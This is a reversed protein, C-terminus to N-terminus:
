EPLPAPIALDIDPPPRLTLQGTWDFGSPDFRLEHLRATVCSGLAEGAAAPEELRLTSFAGDAGMAFRVRVDGTGAPHARFCDMLASDGAVAAQVAAPDPERLTFPPDDGDGTAASPGSEGGPAPTTGEGPDPASAGPEPEPAGATETTDGGEAQDPREGIDSGTVTSLPPTHSESVDRAAAGVAPPVPERVPIPRPDGTEPMGGLTRGGGRGDMSRWIASGVFLAAVLGMAAATWALTRGIGPLGDRPGAPTGDQLDTAETPSPPGGSDGDGPDPGIEASAASRAPEVVPLDLMPLVRAMLAEPGPRGGAARALADGMTAADEFRNAPEVSFAIALVSALPGDVSDLREVAQGVDGQAIRYMSRYETEALFIPYGLVVEALITALGFLDSRPDVPRGECMEPSMYCPTGRTADSKTAFVNTAAKAVGFDMVKVAGDEGVMLNGPKLDRHIVGLPRGQEDRAGHAYALGACVQVGIEVAAEVGLGVGGPQGHTLIRQLSWGRVLEMSLYPVDDIRGFDYVEVIGAHRLRSCLRAEDEFGTRADPEVLKHPLMRKVAMPKTFGSEGRYIARHVEAMGGSGLLEVLEFPGFREAM